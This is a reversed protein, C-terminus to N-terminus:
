GTHVRIACTDKMEVKSFTWELARLMYELITQYEQIHIRITENICIYIYIPLFYIINCSVCYYVHTRETTGRRVVHFYVCTQHVSSCLRARGLVGPGARKQGTGPCVHLEASPGRPPAFPNAFSFQLM